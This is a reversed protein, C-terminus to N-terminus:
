RRASTRRKPVRAEAGEGPEAGTYAGGFFDGEAVAEAAVVLGEVDNDCLAGLLVDVELM